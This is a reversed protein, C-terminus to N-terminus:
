RDVKYGEKSFVLDGQHYVTVVIKQLNADRNSVASADVTVSYNGPLPSIVDYTAPVAQFTDSKTYELQSQALNEATTLEDLTEISKAGSSLTSLVMVVVGGMLALAILVEVMSFGRSCGVFIHRHMRGAISKFFTGVRSM